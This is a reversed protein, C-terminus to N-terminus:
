CSAVLGLSLLLTVSKMATFIRAIPSALRAFDISASM